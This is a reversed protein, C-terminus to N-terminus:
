HVEKLIKRWDAQATDSAVFRAVGTRYKTVTEVPAARQGEAKVHKLMSGVRGAMRRLYAMQGRQRVMEYRTGDRTDIMVEREGDLVTIFHQKFM